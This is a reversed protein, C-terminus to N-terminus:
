RGFVLWAPTRPKSANNSLSFASVPPASSMLRCRPPDSGIWAVDMPGDTASLMMWNPVSPNKEPVTGIAPSNRNGISIRVGSSNALASTM